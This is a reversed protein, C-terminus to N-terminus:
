RAHPGPAPPGHRLPAAVPVGGAPEPDKAHPEPGNWSVDWIGPRGNRCKLLEVRWNGGALPAIRWRSAAPGPLDADGGPRLLLAAAGADEAALHLRRLSRPEAAREPEGLVAAVARSRLCEEMAWLVGQGDAPQVLILAEPALGLPILGAACLGPRTGRPPRRCWAVPRKGAAALRGLLRAAFGAAAAAPVPPGPAFIEHLAAPALGGGPLHRDIAPLGLPVPPAAASPPSLAELQRRLADLRNKRDMDPCADPM